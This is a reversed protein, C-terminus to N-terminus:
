CCVGSPGHNGGGDIDKDDEEVLAAAVEMGGSGMGSTSGAVVMARRSSSPGIEIHPHNTSNIAFRISCIVLPSTSSM